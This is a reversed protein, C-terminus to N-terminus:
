SEYEITAKFKDDTDLAMSIIWPINSIFKGRDNLVNIILPGIVDIEEDTKSKASFVNIDFTKYVEIIFTNSKMTLFNKWDEQKTMIDTEEYFERVMADIFSENEEVKGGVGNLKGKQWEPRNKRIMLVRYENDFAFGLVYKKM